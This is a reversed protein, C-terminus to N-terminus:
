QLVNKIGSEVVTKLQKLADRSATLEYSHQFQRDSLILQQKGINILYIYNYNIILSKGIRIFQQAEDKLQTELLKQIAGLNISFVHKKNGTLVLTAYNGDSSVYVIRDPTVRVAENTNSIVLYQPM